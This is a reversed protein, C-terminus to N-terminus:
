KFFLKKFHCSFIREMWDSIRAYDQPGGPKGPLNHSHCDVLEGELGIKGLVKM